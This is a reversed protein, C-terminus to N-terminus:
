KSFFFQVFMRFINMKLICSKLFIVYSSFKFCLSDLKLLFFNGTAINSQGVQLTPRVQSFGVKPKFTTNGVRFVTNQTTVQTVVGTNHNPDTPKPLVALSKPSSKVEALLCSSKSSDALDMEPNYDPDHGKKKKKKPESANPDTCKKKQSVCCQTYDTTM